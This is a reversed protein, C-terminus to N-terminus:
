RSTIKRNENSTKERRPLVMELRCENSDSDTAWKLRGQYEVLTNDIKGLEEGIYDLGRASKFKMTCVCNEGENCVDIVLYSNDGSESDDIIRFVQQLVRHLAGGAVPGPVLCGKLDTEVNYVTEVEMSVAMEEGFLFAAAMEPVKLHVVKSIKQLDRTVKQIYERARESKGLQLYGSIVQLHNLFDHRMVSIVKLIDASDM